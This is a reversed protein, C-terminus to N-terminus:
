NKDIYKEIFVLIRNILPINSKKLMKIDDKEICKMRIIWFFYFLFATTLVITMELFVDLVLFTKMVFILLLSGIGGSFIKSITKIPLNLNIGIKTFEKKLFYLSISFYVFYSLATTAAAGIIGYYPILIVNGIINLTATIFLIQTSVMPKGIGNLATTLILGLTLFVFGVSLIQLSTSAGLYSAGFLVNIVIEPFTIFIIGLPFIIIFSTKLLRNISKSVADYKKMSWLESIVPLLIAILSTSFYNMVQATPLSAQYLGVDESSRFFTLCVTDMYGMILSAIGSITVPISFLLIKKIIDKEYVGRPITSMTKSVLIFSIFSAALVGVAYGYSVNMASPGKIFFLLIISLAISTIYSIESFAYLNIKQFGQFFAKFIQFFLNVFFFIYLPTLIESVASDKFFYLSFYDSYFILLAIAAISIMAQLAVSFLLSIKINGYSKKVLFEPILKAIATNLGLDRFLMPFTIFVYASYFLGYDAVLINRAIFIRLFYGIIGSVVYVIFLSITGKVVREMYKQLLIRVM